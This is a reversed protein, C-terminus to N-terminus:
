FSVVVILNTTGLFAWYALSFLVCGKEWKSFNLPDHVDNSPQPELVIGGKNRKLHGHANDGDELRALFEQQFEVRDISPEESKEM